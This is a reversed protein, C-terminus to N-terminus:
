DDLKFISLCPADWVATRGSFTSRIQVNANSQVLKVAFGGKFSVPLGHLRGRIEGSADLDRANQLAEEFM